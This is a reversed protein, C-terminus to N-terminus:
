RSRLRRWDPIRLLQFLRPVRKTSSWPGAMTGPRFVFIDAVAFYEPLQGQPVPGAFHVRNRINEPVLREYRSRQPGDGLLLLAVNPRMTAVRSFVDILTDVGKREIMQGSFLLVACGSLNHRRIIAAAREPAVRAFRNTDCCYPMVFLREPLAGLAAYADRAATGICLVGHSQALVSSRIRNRLWRIPSFTRRDASDPHPRELWVVWVRRRLWLLAACSLFTISPWIGSLVFSDFEGTACEWLAAPHLRFEDRWSRPGIGSM